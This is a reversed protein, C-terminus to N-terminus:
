RSVEDLRRRAERAARVIQVSSLQQKFPGFKKREERYLKWFRKESKDPRKM